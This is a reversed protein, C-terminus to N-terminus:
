KNQGDFLNKREKAPDETNPACEEMKQVDQGEFSFSLKQMM